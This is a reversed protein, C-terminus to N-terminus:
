FGLERRAPGPSPARVGSGFANPTMFDEKTQFKHAGTALLERKQSTVGGNLSGGERYPAKPPMALAITTGATLALQAFDVLNTVGFGSGGGPGGKAFAADAELWNALSAQMLAFVGLVVLSEARRADPILVNRLLNIQYHRLPDEAEPEESQKLDDMERDYIGLLEQLERSLPWSMVSMHHLVTFVLMLVWATWKLPASVTGDDAAQGSRPAPAAAVRDIAARRLGYLMVLPINLLMAPLQLQSAKDPLQDMSKPAPPQPKDFKSHVATALGGASWAYVNTSLFMLLMALLGASERGLAVTASAHTPEGAGLAASLLLVIPAALFFTHSGSIAALPHFYAPTPADEEGQEFAGLEARLKSADGGRAMVHGIEQLLHRLRAGASTKDDGATRREALAIKPLVHEAQVTGLLLLASGVMQLVTQVIRVGGARQAALARTLGHLMLSAVVPVALLEVADPLPAAPALPLAANIELFAPLRPLASGAM